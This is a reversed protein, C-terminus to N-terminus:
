LWQILHSLQLCYLIHLKLKGLLDVKLKNERWFLYFGTLAAVKEPLAWGKYKYGLVAIKDVVNYFAWFNPAWYAHCLGRGFPFLRANNERWFRNIVSEVSTANAGYNCVSWVVSCVCRGCM